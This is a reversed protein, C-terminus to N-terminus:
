PAIRAAFKYVGNEVELVVASKSANRDADITISGTVGEFNKVQTLAERIKDADTSGATKIAEGLIMMADYGLPAM